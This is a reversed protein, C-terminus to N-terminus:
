YVLVIPAGGSMVQGTIQNNLHVPPIGPVPVTLSATVIFNGPMVNAFSFLGLPDGPNRTGDVSIGTTVSKMTVASNNIGTPAAAIIVAPSVTPGFKVQVTVMPIAAGPVPMPPSLTPLSSSGSVPMLVDKLRDMLSILRSSYFGGFFAFVIIGKSSSIDVINQDKFFNYGLVVVLTCLPAYLLKAVQGFIESSDFQSKPNTLDTTSNSGVVGLNFLLSSLVGFVSWFIVEWYVCPGVLWFYSHIKFRTGNLFGPAEQPSAQCLFKKVQASQTAEIKNEFINNLYNMTKACLVTDPIAVPKTASVAALSATGPKNLTVAPNVHPHTQGTGNAAPNTIVSPKAVSPPPTASPKNVLPQNESVKKALSDIYIKNIFQMQDQSLKTYEYGYQTPALYVHLVFYIIGGLVLKLVLFKFWTKEDYSKFDWIGNRKTAM